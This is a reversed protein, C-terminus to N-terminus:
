WCGHAERSSLAPTTLVPTADVKVYFTQELLREELLLVDTGDSPARAFSPWTM